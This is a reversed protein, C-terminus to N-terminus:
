KEALVELIPSWVNLAEDSKKWQHDADIKFYAVNMGVELDANTLPKYNDLDVMCILDPAKATVQGVENRALLSENKFYVKYQGHTNDVTVKGTEFGGSIDMEVSKVTGKTLVECNLQKEINTSMDEKEKAIEVFLKGIQICKKIEDALLKTEVDVRNVPWTSLAATGGYTVCISRAIREIVDADLPNAPYTVIIDVEEDGAAIVLPTSKIQNIAHLSTGLEPVARGQCDADLLPIGLAAAAYAAVITNEGGLEGSIICEVRKGQKELEKMMARGATKIQSRFDEDDGAEAASGILAVPIAYGDGMESVSMLEVSNLGEEAMNDIITFGAQLKGGGGSGYFAAGYALAKLDELTMKYM